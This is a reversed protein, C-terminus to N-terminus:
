QEFAGHLALKRPNEISTFLVEVEKNSTFIRVIQGLDVNSFIVAENIWDYVLGGILGDEVQYLLEMTARTENNRISASMITNNDM